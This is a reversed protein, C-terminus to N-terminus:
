TNMRLTATHEYPVTKVTGPYAYKSCHEVFDSYPIVNMPEFRFLCAQERCGRKVNSYLPSLWFQEKKKVAAYGSWRWEESEM